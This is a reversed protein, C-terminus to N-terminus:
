ILISKINAPLSINNSFFIYEKTRRKQNISYHLDLYDHRFSAYLETILSHVDYTVVWKRSCRKIMSALKKHDEESFSNEYLGAGKSVYPPDFNVFTKKLKKM